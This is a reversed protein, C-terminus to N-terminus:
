RAGGKTECMKKKFCNLCPHLSCAFLYFMDM